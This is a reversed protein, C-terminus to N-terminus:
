NTLNDILFKGNEIDDIVYVVWGQALLRKHVLGQLPTPVKGPAKFEVLVLKRKYFILYDPVGKVSMSSWKYAICGANRAYDVITKQVDGELLKNM